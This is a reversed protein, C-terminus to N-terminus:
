LGQKDYICFFGIIVALFICVCMMIGCLVALTILMLKKSRSNSAATDSGVNNSHTEGFLLADSSIKFLDSLAIINAANPQVINQEWKSVTQRSVDILEALEEQSYGAKVRYERIREGIYEM